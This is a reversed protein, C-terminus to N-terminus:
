SAAKALLEMLPRMAPPPPPPQSPPAVTLKGNVVPNRDQGGCDEHVMRNINSVRDYTRSVKWPASFMVPDTITMQDELHGDVMRIREEFHAQRSLLAAVKLNDDKGGVAYIPILPSGPAGLPSQVAITDIVLTQGEWHGVADGWYTPWLDEKDTHPRGDTYVHRIERGSFVLVTEKPTPLVEFMLPTSLMLMPMGFACAGGSSVNSPGNDVADQSRKEMFAIAQEVKPRVQEAYPPPGWKRMGAVVEDLTHYYGGTPDPRTAEVDWLGSWDPLSAAAQAAPPKTTQPKAAERCGGVALTGAALATAFALVAPTRTM